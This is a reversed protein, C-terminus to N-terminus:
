KKFQILIKMARYYFFLSLFVVVIGLGIYFLSILSLGKLITDYAIFLSITILVLQLCALSFLLIASLLNSKYKMLYALLITIISFGLERLFIVTPMFPIIKLLWLVFPLALNLIAITIAFYYAQNIIRQATQPM